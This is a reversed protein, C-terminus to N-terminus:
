PPEEFSLKGIRELLGPELLGLHSDAGLRPHRSQSIALARQGGKTVLARRIDERKARIRPASFPQEDEPFSLFHRQRFIGNNEPLTTFATFQDLDDASRLLGWFFLDIADHHMIHDMRTDVALNYQYARHWAPQARALDPDAPLQLREVKLRDLLETMSTNEFRRDREAEYPPFWARAHAM